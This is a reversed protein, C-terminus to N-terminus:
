KQARGQFDTARPNPNRGMVVRDNVAATTAGTGKVDQLRSPDTSTSASRMINDHKERMNSPPANNKVMNRIPATAQKARAQRRRRPVIAQIKDWVAPPIENRAYMETLDKMSMTFSKEDEDNDGSEKNDEKSRSGCLECTPQKCECKDKLQAIERADTEQVTGQEHNQAFQVIQGKESAINNVNDGAKEFVDVDVPHHPNQPPAVIGLTTLYNTPEHLHLRSYKPQVFVNNYDFYAHRGVYGSQIHSYLKAFSRHRHDNDVLVYQIPENIVYDYSVFQGPSITFGTLPGANKFNCITLRYIEERLGTRAKCWRELEFGYRMSCHTLDQRKALHPQHMAHRCTLKGMITIAQIAAGGDYLSAAAPKLEEGYGVYSAGPLNWAKVGDLSAPSVQTLMGKNIKIGTQPLYGDVTAIKTYIGMELQTIALPVFASIAREHRARRYPAYPGLGTALAIVAASRDVNCYADHPLCWGYQQRMLGMRYIDFMSISFLRSGFSQIMYHHVAQARRDRHAARNYDTERDNRGGRRYFGYYEKLLQPTIQLLLRAQDATVGIVAQMYCTIRYIHHPALGLMSKWFPSPAQKLTEKNWTHFWYLCETTNDAVEVHWYSEGVDITPIFDHRNTRRIGTQSNRDVAQGEPGIQPAVIHAEGFKLACLALARFYETTFSAMLGLKQAYEVMCKMHVNPRYHRQAAAIAHLQHHTPCDSGFMFIIGKERSVPVMEAVCRYHAGQVPVELSSSNAEGNGKAVEILFELVDPTTSADVPLVLYGEGQILDRCAKGNIMRQNHRQWLPNARNWEGPADSFETARGNQQVQPQALQASARTKARWWNSHVTQVRVPFLAQHPDAVEREAEDNAMRSLLITVQNDAIIKLSACFFFKSLNLTALPQLPQYEHAFNMMVRHAIDYGINLENLLQSHSHKRVKENADPDLAHYYKAEMQLTPEGINTRKIIPAGLALPDFHRKQIYTCLLPTIFHSNVMMESAGDRMNIALRHHLTVASYEGIDYDDADSVWHTDGNLAHRTSKSLNFMPIPGRFTDEAFAIHKLSYIDGVNDEDKVNECVVRASPIATKARMEAETPEVRMLDLGFDVTNLTRAMVNASPMPAIKHPMGYMDAASGQSLTTRQLMGGCVRGSVLIDIEPLVKDYKENWEPHLRRIFTRWKTSNWSGHSLLTKGRVRMYVGAGPKGIHNLVKRATDSRNGTAMFCATLGMVGNLHKRRVDLVIDGFGTKQGTFILRVVAVMQKRFERNRQYSMKARETALDLQRPDVKLKEMAALEVLANRRAEDRQAKPARTRRAQESPPLRDVSIPHYQQKRQKVILTTLGNDSSTKLEDTQESVVSYSKKGKLLAEHRKHARIQARTMPPKVMLERDKNPVHMQAKQIAIMTQNMRERERDKRYQTMDGILRSDRKNFKPAANSIISFEHAATSMSKSLQDGGYIWAPSDSHFLQFWPLKLINKAISWRRSMENQHLAKINDICRQRLGAVEDAAKIARQRYHAALQNAVSYKFHDEVCLMSKIIFNRKAFVGQELYDATNWVMFRPSIVVDEGDGIYTAILYYIRRRRTKGKLHDDRDFWIRLDCSRIEKCAGGYAKITNAKGALPKIHLLRIATMAGYSANPAYVLENDATAICDRHTVPFQTILSGHTLPAYTVFHEDVAAQLSILATVEPKMDIAVRDNCSKIASLNATSKLQALADSLSYSSQDVAKQLEPWRDLPANKEETPQVFSAVHDVLGDVMAKWQSSRTFPARAYGDIAIGLSNSIPQPELHFGSVNHDINLAANVSRNSSPKNNRTSESQVGKDMENMALAAMAKPISYELEMRENELVQLAGKRGLKIVNRAHAQEANSGYTSKPHISKVQIDLEPPLLSASAQKPQTLVTKNPQPNVHQPNEDGVFDLKDDVLESLTVLERSARSTQQYLTTSYHSYNPDNLDDLVEANFEEGMSNFSVSDYKAEVDDDESASEVDSFSIFTCELPPLKNTNNSEITSVGSEEDLTDLTPDSDKGTRTAKAKNKRLMLYACEISSPMYDDVYEGDENIYPEIPPEPDDLMTRGASRSVNNHESIGSLKGSNSSSKISAAQTDSESGFDGISRGRLALDAMMKRTRDVHSYKSLTVLDYEEANEAESEYEDPQVDDLMQKEEEKQKRGSAPSTSRSSASFSTRYVMSPKNIKRGSERKLAEATQRKVAKKLVRSASASLSHDSRTAEQSKNTSAVRKSHKIPDKVKKQASTNGNYAHM